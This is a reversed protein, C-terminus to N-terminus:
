NQKFGVVRMDSYQEQLIWAVKVLKILEERNSEAM